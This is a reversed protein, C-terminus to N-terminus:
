GVLSLLRLPEAVPLREAVGVPAVLGRGQRAFLSVNCPAHETVPELLLSQPAQERRVLPLPLSQAARAQWQERRLIPILHGGLIQDVRNGGDVRRPGDQASPQALQPTHHLTM